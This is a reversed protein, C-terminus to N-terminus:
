FSKLGSMCLTCSGSVKTLENLGNQIDGTESAGAGARAEALAAEAKSARLEAAELKAALDAQQKKLAAM